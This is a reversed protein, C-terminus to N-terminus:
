ICTGYPHGSYVPEMLTVVIYLNWLPHGRYVPEMVIVVMYLKWLSSWWICTGYPHGGYVPEMLTVVIPEM